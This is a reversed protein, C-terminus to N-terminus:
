VEFITNYTKVKENLFKVMELEADRTFELAPYGKDIFGSNLFKYLNYLSIGTDPYYYLAPFIVGLSHDSREVVELESTLVTPDLTQENNSLTVRKHPDQLFSLDKIRLSSIYGKNKEISALLSKRFVDTAENILESEEGKLWTAIKKLGDYDKEM